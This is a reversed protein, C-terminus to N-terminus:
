KSRGYSHANPNCIQLMNSQQGLVWVPCKQIRLNLRLCCLVRYCSRHWVKLLQREFVPRFFPTPHKRTDGMGRLWGCVARFRSLDDLWVPASEWGFTCAPCRQLMDGQTGQIGWCRQATVDTNWLAAAEPHKTTHTKDEKKEEGNDLHSVAKKTHSHPNHM